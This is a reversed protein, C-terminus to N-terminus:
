GSEGIKEIVTDSFFYNLIDIYDNGRKAAENAGYQCLGLGHGVGKTKLIVTNGEEAIEFCSSKLGFAERFVEGSLCVGNLSVETVYGARDRTLVLQEQATREEEYQMDQMFEGLRKWFTHRGMRVSGTYDESTFDRGCMVSKLYGYEGSGFVENGNRTAGASVAFYPAAVIEGEYMLFMGRTSSVAEKSREYAEEGVPVNGSEVYIHKGDEEALKMLETRLVVAQAKLAEMEYDMDITAPLYGTLYTELPIRETGAQTKNYVIYEAKGADERFMGEEAVSAEEGEGVAGQGTNGFFFSVVYPVFLLFLLVAGLDRYGTKLAIRRYNVVNKITEKRRM